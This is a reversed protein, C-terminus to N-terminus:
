AKIMKPNYYTAPLTDQKTSVLAKGIEAQAHLENDDLVKALWSAFGAKADAGAGFESSTYKKWAKNESGDDHGTGNGSTYYETVANFLDYLTQGKNGIGNEHLHSIDVIQNFARTSLITNPDVGIGKYASILQEAKKADCEVEAFRKMMYVFQDRGKYINAITRGAEDLRLDANSTKKIKIALDGQDGLAYKFTNACVVRTNSDFMTMAYSGDHSQLLNLYFQFNDGNILREADDAIEISSFFLKGQRLTGLTEISYNIGEDDLSNCVAEVLKQNPISKYRASPVGLGYRIGEFERTLIKNEPCEAWTNILEKISDHPLGGQRASIDILEQRLDPNVDAYATGEDINFYVNRHDSDIIEKSLLEKIVQLDHWEKKTSIVTDTHEIEHSM